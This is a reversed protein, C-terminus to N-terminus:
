PRLENASIVASSTKKTTDKSAKLNKIKVRNSPTSVNPFQEKGNIDIYSSYHYNDCYAIMYAVSDIKGVAHTIQMSNSSGGSGRVAGSVFTYVYNTSSVSTDHGFFYRTVVPYSGHGTGDTFNITRDIYIMSTDESWKFSNISPIAPPRASIVINELSDEDETNYAIKNIEYKGYKGSISNFLISWTGASIHTGTSTKSTDYSFYYRGNKVIDYISQNVITDDIVPCCQVKLDEFNTEPEGFKNYLEVHGFIGPTRKTSDTNSPKATTDSCSCFGAFLASLVCLITTIRIMESTKFQKTKFTKLRKNKHKLILVSSISM